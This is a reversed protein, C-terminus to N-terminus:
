KAGPIKKGDNPPLHEGYRDLPFDVRAGMRGGSEPQDSQDDGDRHHAKRKRGSMQGIAETAPLNNENRLDEAPEGRSRQGQNGPFMQGNWRHGSNAFRIVHETRDGSDKLSVMRGEM